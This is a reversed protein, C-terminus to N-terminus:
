ETRTWFSLEPVSRIVGLDAAHGYCALLGKQEEPGLDYSFTRWYRLLAEPAMGFEAAHVGALPDLRALGYEKSAQLVDYLRGLEQELRKHYNVQWLAFVFPLGTRQHWLAGLDYVHPFAPAAARQLALDGITLVADAQAYPEERGQEYEQYRPLVGHFLELIIRLLVVSTASATTLAVTRSSLEEVPVRSELIISLAETRSTISFGPLIRYRGAHLAYEISSSPSVDLAGEHLLRNLETPIGRVLRFPFPVAGSLIGAHVPLCNAYTIHGLTLM